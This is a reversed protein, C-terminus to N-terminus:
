WSMDVWFNFVGGLSVTIFVVLVSLVVILTGSSFVLWTVTVGTLTSVPVKSTVDGSAAWVAAATNVVTVVAVGSLVVGGVISVVTIYM